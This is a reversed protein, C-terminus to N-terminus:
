IKIPNSSYGLESWTMGSGINTIPIQLASINGKHDAAVQAGGALTKWSEWSTYVGGIPIIKVWMKYGTPLGSEDIYWLYADGPTVGGSAYSVLLGKNGEADKAIQRKTGPDMVKFPAAFWWMDNCWFGWATQVVKNAEEGVLITGSM